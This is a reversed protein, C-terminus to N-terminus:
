YPFLKILLCRHWKWLKSRLSCGRIYRAVRKNRNMEFGTQGTALHSITLVRMFTFVHFLDKWLVGFNKEVIVYTKLFRCDLWSERLPFYICGTHTHSKPKLWSNKVVHCTQRGVLSTWTFFVTVQRLPLPRSCIFCTLEILLAWYSTQLLTQQIVVPFSKPSCARNTAHM